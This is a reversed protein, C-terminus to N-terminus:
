TLRMRQGAMVAIVASMSCQNTNLVLIESDLSSDMIIYYITILVMGSRKGEADTREM